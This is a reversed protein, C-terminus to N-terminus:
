QEVESFEELSKANRKYAIDLNPVVVAFGQEEFYSNFRADPTVLVVQKFDWSHRNLISKYSQLQRMVEGFSKIHSKVEFVITFNKNICYFDDNWVFFNNIFQSRGRRSKCCIQSYSPHAFFASNQM